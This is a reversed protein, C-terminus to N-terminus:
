VRYGKFHAPPHRGGGFYGGGQVNFLYLTDNVEATSVHDELAVGEPLASPKTWTQANMGIAVLAMAVLSLLKKKM